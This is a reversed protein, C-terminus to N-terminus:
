VIIIYHNKVLSLSDDVAKSIQFNNKKNPNFVQKLIMLQKSM